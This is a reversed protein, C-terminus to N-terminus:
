LEDAGGPLRLPYGLLHDQFGVLHREARGGWWVLDAAALGVALDATRVARCWGAGPLETFPPM